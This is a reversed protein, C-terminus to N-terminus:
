LGHPPSSELLFPPHHMSSHVHNNYQFEALLLLDTWDDQQQNFFLRLYQKLEQNVCETQGDGQPHYATTAALKIGLMWYLEQTFEAVFQPGRNSVVKRPLGHHKWVQQIFLQAMRAANVTTFTPMFHARKTVSDVVVMVVDYGASDLLKVIFDVSITDWPTDLILLPHLEGVPPHWHAKTRLCLDCTSIYRGVYQSRQLWWYNCSVLELTKWRGPHGAQRTDHCLSVIHWCLDFTDLVYIKGQFYLVGDVFTWEASHISWTHTAMLGKVVKAVAEEHDGEKTSRHIDKLLEREEGVVELGELAQVAIFGPTLLTLDSNDDSGDGHNARRSLADLKGMSRRPKHHLVFDFRALFLSWQAQRRNLKKASRFYELNKHDTWVEFGHETGELFHRWEEMAWIISLMEKDHIEYNREVM